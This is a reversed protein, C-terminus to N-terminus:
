LKYFIEGPCKRSGEEGSFTQFLIFELLRSVMAVSMIRPSHVPGMLSPTHEPIYHSGATMLLPSLHAVFLPM